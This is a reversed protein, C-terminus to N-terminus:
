GEVDLLGPLIVYALLGASVFIATILVENELTMEEPDSWVRDPNRDFFRTRRLVRGHEEGAEPQLFRPM